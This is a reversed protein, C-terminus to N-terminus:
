YNTGTRSSRWKAECELAANIAANPSLEEGYGIAESMVNWYGHKRMPVRLLWHWAGSQLLRIEIISGTGDAYEPRIEISRLQREM